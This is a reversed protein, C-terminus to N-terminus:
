PREVHEEDRQAREADSGRGEVRQARSVQVVIRRLFHDADVDANEVGHACQAGGDAEETAGEEDGKVFVGEVSRGLTPQVPTVPHIELTHFPFDKGYMLSDFMSGHSM